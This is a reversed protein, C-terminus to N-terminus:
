YGGGSYNQSAHDMWGTSGSQLPEALPMSVRRTTLPQYSPLAVRRTTLQPAQAVPGDYRMSDARLDVYGEALALSASGAVLAAALAIKVKYSM